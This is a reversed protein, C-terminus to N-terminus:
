NLCDDKPILFLQLTMLGIVKKPEIM